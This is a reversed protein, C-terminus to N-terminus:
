KEKIYSYIETGHANIFTIAFSKNSVSCVTYGSLPSCFQTGEIKEVPRSLSASSNVIYEVPSDKMKIHQFSHIHGCFYYDVKYKRLLPDITKQIDIRESESKETSAYVPHHGIVIKWTEKSSALVSDIFHLQKKDNQKWADPYEISDKRYKEILPTTDIFILRMTTSDNIEKVMTYYRSPMVWRRSIKGYDLCAQTNGRYEHNGLIPYWDLMLEPHAYILEFNTMWLPDNVSAVGNFHHIDGAAAVFEIDHFHAFQGMSAAIKKQDYFGNRGLDNAVLFNYDSYVEIAEDNQKTGCSYFLTIIVLVIIYHKSKM